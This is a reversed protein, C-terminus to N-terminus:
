RGELIRFDRRAANDLVKLAARYLDGYAAIAKGLSEFEVVVVSQDVGAEHTKGPKGGAIVRGGISAARDGCAELIRFGHGSEVRVQLVGGLIGEQGDLGGPSEQGGM